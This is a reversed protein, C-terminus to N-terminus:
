HIGVPCVEQCNGCLTCRFVTPSFNTLQEEVSARKRFIKRLLRVRGKLIEKLGKIRHLASLQGDEAATAAPCVDACLQCNTCAEIQILQNITYDQNSM